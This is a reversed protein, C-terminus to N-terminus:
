FNNREFTSQWLIESYRKNNPLIKAWGSAISNAIGYASTPYYEDNYMIPKLECLFYILISLLTLPTLFYWCFRWYFSPRNGLMFEADDLFNDVGPSSFLASTFVVLM